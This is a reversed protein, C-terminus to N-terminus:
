PCAVGARKAEKIDEVDSCHEAHPMFQHFQVPVCHLEKQHFIEPLQEVLCKDYELDTIQDSCSHKDDNIMQSEQVLIGMTKATQAPWPLALTHENNAM